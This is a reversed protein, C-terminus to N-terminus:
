LGRRGIVVPVTRALIKLDRWVSWNAGYLYDIKVMEHMPIRSAGFIQWMGTMGPRFGARRRQWGEIKRDEDPVLPRPGVLSMDGTLVNFLQPLEDISTKRLLGGVRTIRPDDEIKFLGDAENHERLEDKASEADQVMSRFKFMDFGESSRGIRRQRFFVPGSSDLKIAIAIAAFVPSLLLLVLSAGVIDVTRKLLDSSRSLGYRKVGLLPLGDIDDYTSASGVVELLRPLVSVKVGLAKVLRITHLLDDSDPGDFAIIAREIDDGALVMGLTSMDGIVPVRSGAGSDLYDAELPVRGVLEAKVGHVAELKEAVRDAAATSGIVICREPRSRAIAVTRAIARGTMLTVFSVLVLTIVTGRGLHGNVLQPGGLWVCFAFFASVTAVGPAEDLTTKRVLNEDRDYLGLAKSVLLLAPVCVLAPLFSLSEGGIVVLALVLSFAAAVLDVGVLARRFRTDRDTGFADSPEEPFGTTEEVPRARRGAKRPREARWPSREPRTKTGGGARREFHPTLEQTDHENLTMPFAKIRPGYCRLLPRTVRGSIPGDIYLDSGQGPRGACYSGEM